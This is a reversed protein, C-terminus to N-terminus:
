KPEFLKFTSLIQIGKSREEEFRPDEYQNYSFVLIKNNNFKIFAIYSPALGVQGGFDDYVLVEKGSIMVQKESKYGNYFGDGLIRAFEKLSRHQINEKIDLSVDYSNSDDGEPSIIQTSPSAFNIIEKNKSVSTWDNPYKIEFGYKDNRYTKWNSVDTEFQGSSTSPSGVIKAKHQVESGAIILSDTDQEISFKIIEGEIYIFVAFIIVLTWIFWRNPFVTRFM